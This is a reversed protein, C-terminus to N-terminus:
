STFFGASLAIQSAKSNPPWVRPQITPVRDMEWEVKSLAVAEEEVLGALERLHGSIAFIAFRAVECNSRADKLCRRDM